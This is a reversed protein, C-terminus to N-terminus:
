RQQQQRLQKRGSSLVSSAATTLRKKRTSFLRQRQPIPLHSCRGSCPSLTTPTTAAMFLDGGGHSPGVVSLLHADAAPAYSWGGFSVDLSQLACAAV